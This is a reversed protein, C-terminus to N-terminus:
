VSELMKDITDADLVYEIAMVNAGIIGGEKGAKSQVILLNQSALPMSRAYVAERVGAILHEGASSLSGGIVIVAPNILSVCTSLVEGIDRGAQRVAQIAEVKARKTADILDSTNRIPLGEAVLKKIIAPASAIAELCGFNGCHCSV